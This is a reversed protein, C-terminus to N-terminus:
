LRIVGKSAALILGGLGLAGAGIAAYKAANSSNGHNGGPPAHGTTTTTQQGESNSNCNMSGETSVKVTGKYSWMLTKGKDEMIYIRQPGNIKFDYIQQGDVELHCFGNCDCQIRVLWDISGSGSKVAEKWETSEEKEGSDYIVLHAKAASAPYYWPVDWEVKVVISGIKAAPQAAAFGALLGVYETHFSLAITYGPILDWGTDKWSSDAAVPTAAALIPTALFFLLIIYAPKM